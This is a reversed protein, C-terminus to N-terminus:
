IWAIEWKFDPFHTYIPLDKQEAIVAFSASQPFIKLLFSVTQIKEWHEIRNFEDILLISKNIINLEKMFSLIIKIVPLATAPCAREPTHGLLFKMLYSPNNDSSKMSELIRWVGHNMMAPTRQDLFLKFRETGINFVLKKVLQSTSFMKKNVHITLLGEEYFECSKIETLIDFFIDKFPRQPNVKSLLWFGSKDDWKQSANLFFHLQDGLKILDHNM